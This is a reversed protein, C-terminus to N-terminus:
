PRVDEQTLLFQCTSRMTEFSFKRWGPKIFVGGTCAGEYPIHVKGGWDEAVVFPLGSDPGGLKFAEQPPKGSREARRVQQEVLIRWLAYDELPCSVSQVTERSILDEILQFLAPSLGTKAPPCDIVDPHRPLDSVFDRWHTGQTIRDLEHRVLYDGQNHLQQQCKVVLGFFNTMRERWTPESRFMLWCRAEPTTDDGEWSFLRDFDPLLLESSDDEDRPCPNRQRHSNRARDQVDRDVDILRIQFYQLVDGPRHLSMLEYVRYGRMASEILIALPKADIAVTFPCDDKRGWGRYPGPNLTQHDACQLWEENSLLRTGGECNGNM